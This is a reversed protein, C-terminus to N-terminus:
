VCGTGVVKFGPLEFTGHKNSQTRAAPATDPCCTKDLIKGRYVLIDAEKVPNAYMLTETKGNVVITKNKPTAFELVGCLQDTKQWQSDSHSSDYDQIKM